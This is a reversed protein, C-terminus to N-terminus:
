EAKLLRYLVEIQAVTADEPVDAENIQHVEVTIPEKLGEVYGDTLKKRDAIVEAYEEQIPALAADFAEKNDGFFFEKGIIVPAGNIDKQAYQRCLTLRKDEYARFELSPKLAEDLAEVEPKLKAKTRAVAYGLKFGKLNGLSALGNWLEFLEQRTITIKM